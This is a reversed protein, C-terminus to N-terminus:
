FNFLSHVCVYLWSKRDDQNSIANSCLDNKFSYLFPFIGSWFVTFTEIIKGTATIGASFSMFNSM